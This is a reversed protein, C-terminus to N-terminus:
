WGKLKISKTPTRGTSLNLPITLHIDLWYFWHGHRHRSRRPQFPQQLQSSSYKPRNNLLHTYVQNWGSPETLRCKFQKSRQASSWTPLLDVCILSCTTEESRHSRKSMAQGKKPHQHFTHPHAFCGWSCHRSYSSVVISKWCGKWLQDQHVPFSCDLAKTSTVQM